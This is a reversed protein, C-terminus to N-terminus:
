FCDPKRAPGRVDVNEKVKAGAPFQVSLLKM